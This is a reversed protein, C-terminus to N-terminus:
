RVKPLIERKYFNFFGEQDPGVQHIFLHDFGADAYKKIEALHRQPDPGCVVMKAVQDETAEKTAEEFHRPVPLEQSVEGHLAANPWIERATRKASAEDAAWCVTLQGYRPKGAGGAAEFRRVLEKQPATSVLGDGIRGALDAAHPGSGAVMVRVPEDPLTYIRADEVTYHRGHHNHMGGKWLLRMVGVAEELMERRVAYSPWRDGYIHENLNEGTGVGLFFRGPMLTAATAAMQAVLAPHYRVTPCTVATGLRLRDTAQAVAGIVTWAFPAHGQRDTWPHYHDSIMAFAFGAEEAGRAARVLEAPPHEECSLSYGLEIM